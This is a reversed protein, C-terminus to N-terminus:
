AFLKGLVRVAVDWWLYLYAYSAILVVYGAVVAIGDNEMTGLALLIVALCPLANIGPMPFPPLLVLAAIFIAFGAMVHMAGTCMFLWRPTLLRELPRAVREVARVIAALTAPQIPRRMLFGPLWPKRRFGFRLGLIAIVAGIPISLGPLPLPLVFPAALLTILVATGRDKLSELLAGFSTPQDGVEDVFVRLGDSLPTKSLQEPGAPESM